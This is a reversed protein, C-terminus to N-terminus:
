STTLPVPDSMPQEELKTKLNNLGQDFAPGIIHDIFIGYFREWPYWKLKYEMYWHVQTQRNSSDVAFVRFGGAADNMGQMEYFLDIEQPKMKKLTITGGSKDDLQKWKFYSGPMNTVASLQVIAGSDNKIWPLWQNWNKVDSLAAYVKTSDADIIIGRSIKASSPILLGILTLVIFLGTLVFLFMKILRM